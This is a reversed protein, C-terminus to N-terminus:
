INGYGEPLDRHEPNWRITILCWTIESTDQSEDQPEDQSKASTKIVNDKPDASKIIFTSQSCSRKFKDQSNWPQPSKLLSTKQVTIFNKCAVQKYCRWYAALQHRPQLQFFLKSALSHKVYCLILLLSRYSKYTLLRVM